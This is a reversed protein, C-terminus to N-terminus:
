IYSISSQVVGDVNLDYPIFFADLLTSQGGAAFLWDQLESKEIQSMRLDSVAVRPIKTIFVDKGRQITLLAIPDNVVDVLHKQGFILEGDVWIIRDNDQLGAQRMASGEVPNTGAFPHYILFSAPSMLGLTMRAKSTGSLNQGENLTFTFPQKQNNQYDITYGSLIPSERDLFAAYVLQNFGTFPRSNIKSIEDGPRVGKNYVESARDVWGVLHTYESFLKERGGFLWIMCFLFFAMSINVLPGAIAVRIRAAPTKAFFGGAIEYPELNGKKEMGSIKVYGGFPLWCIQWKVGGVYWSFIPKGFGIAFVEVIMGERRAIFYHGLEHIFILFGLALAALLMYAISYIM